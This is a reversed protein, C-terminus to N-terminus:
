ILSIMGGVDYKQKLEAFLKSIDENMMMSSWECEKMHQNLILLLRYFLVLIEQNERYENVSKYIEHIVLEQIFVRSEHNECLEISVQLLLILVSFSISERNSLPLVTYQLYISKLLELGHCQVFSQIHSSDRLYCCISELSSLLLSCDSLGVSKKFLPFLISQIDSEKYDTNNRHNSLIESYCEIIPVLLSPHEWFFETLLSLISIYVQNNESTILSTRGIYRLIYGFSEYTPLLSDNFPQKLSNYMLLFTDQLLSHIENSYETDQNLCKQIVNGLAYGEEVEPYQLYELFYHKLLINPIDSSHFGKIQIFFSIFILLTKRHSQLSTTDSRKNLCLISLSDDNANKNEEIPHKLDKWELNNRTDYHELLSLSFLVMSADVYIDILEIGKREIECDGRHHFICNMLPLLISKKKITSSLSFLINMSLLHTDRHLSLKQLLSACLDYIENYISHYFPLDSLNKLLSSLTRLYVCYVLDSPDDGRQAILQIMRNLSMPSSLLLPVIPISFLRLLLFGITQVIRTNQSHITGLELLMSVLRYIPFAQENCYPSPYSLLCSLAYQVTSSSHKYLQISHLISVIQSHNEPIDRFTDDKDIYDLLQYCNALVETVMHTDKKITFTSSNQETISSPHLPNMSDHMVKYVADEDGSSNLMKNGNNIDDNLHNQQKYISPTVQTYQEIIEYLGKKLEEVDSHTYKNSDQEMLMRLTDSLIRNLSSLQDRQEIIMKTATHLRFSPCTNSSNLLDSYDHLLANQPQKDLKSTM